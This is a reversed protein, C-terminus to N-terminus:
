IPPFTLINEEERRREKSEGSGDVLSFLFLLLPLFGCVRWGRGIGGAVRGLGMLGICMVVVVAVTLVAVSYWWEEGFGRLVDVDMSFVKMNDSRAM